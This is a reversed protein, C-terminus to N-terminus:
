AFRYLSCRRYSNTRGVSRNDSRRRLRMLLVFRLRRRLILMLLLLCRRWSQRNLLCFCRRSNPLRLCRRNSLNFQRHSHWLRNHKLAYVFGLNPHRAHLTHPLGFEGLDVGLDLLVLLGPCSKLFSHRGCCLGKKLFCQAVLVAFAVLMSFLLLSWFCRLLPYCLSLYLLLYLLLLLDLTIGYDSVLNFFLLRIQLDLDLTVRISLFM